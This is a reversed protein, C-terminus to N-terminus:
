YAGKKPVRGGEDPYKGSAIVNEDRCVSAFSWVHFADGSRAHSEVYGVFEDLDDFILRGPSRSGRYFWHEVIIPGEEELTRRIRELNEASLIKRGDPAWEDVDARFSMAVDFASAYRGADGAACEAGFGNLNVILPVSIRPRTCATTLNRRARLALNKKIRGSGAFIM